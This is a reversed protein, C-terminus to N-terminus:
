PMESEDFDTFFFSRKVKLHNEVDLLGPVNEICKEALKKMKRSPVEGLLTVVGDKVKVEIKSADVESHFTLNLCAEEWIHKDPDYDKPGKGIFHFTDEREFEVGDLGYYKKESLYSEEPQRM